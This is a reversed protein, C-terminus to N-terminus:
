PRPGLPDRVVNVGLVGGLVRRRTALAPHVAPVPSNAADGHRLRCRNGGVRAGVAHAAAALGRHHSRRVHSVPRIACGRDPSLLDGARAPEAPVARRCRRPASLGLFASRTARHGARPVCAAAVDFRVTQRRPGAARVLDHHRVVPLRDRGDRRRDVVGGYAAPVPLDPLRRSHLSPFIGPEHRCAGAPLVAAAGHSLPHRRPDGRRSIAARGHDDPEVASHQGDRAM